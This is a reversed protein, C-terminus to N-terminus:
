FFKQHHKYKTDDSLESFAEDSINFKKFNFNNYVLDSNERQKNAVTKNFGYVKGLEQYQEKTIDTQKESVDTRKKLESGIPSYGPRKITATKEFLDKEALLDESM